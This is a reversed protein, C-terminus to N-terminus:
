VPRGVVPAMGSVTPCTPNTGTTSFNASAASGIGGEGLDRYNILVTYATSVDMFELLYETSGSALRDVRIQDAGQKLHVEIEFDTNTNVWTVLATSGTIDSVVPTNPTALGTLDIKDTTVPFVWGSPLVLKDSDQPLSRGRVWIRRGPALGDIITTATEYVTTAYRWLDSSEAPRTGTAVTTSAFEIQVPDTDGNVTVPVNIAVSESGTVLSLAGLSPGTAVSDEGLDVGTLVTGISGPSIEVIRVLRNGGRLNTAPDAIEDFDWIALGGVVVSSMGSAGINVEASHEVVGAAYPGKLEEIQRLLLAEVRRLDSEGADTDQIFARHGIADIKLTREPLSSDSFNLVILPVQFSEIMSATVDPWEEQSASIDTRARVRDAYYYADVRTVASKRQFRKKPSAGDVLDSTSFTPPSGTSIVRRMDVLRLDGSADFYYGFGFPLCLHKEIWERADGVPETLIGRFLGWTTDAIFSTFDSSNYAVSWTVDGFSGGMVQGDSLRGFEGDLMDRMLTHPHIDQIYIPSIESPKQDVVIDFEVATGNAPMALYNPDSTLPVFGYWGTLESVSLRTLHHHNNADVRHNFNPAGPFLASGLITPTVLWHGEAGATAGDLIKVRVRLTPNRVRGVTVRESFLADRLAKTIIDGDPNVSDEAFQSDDVNIINYSGFLAISGIVMTGTAKPVTPLGGFAETMGLPFLPSQIAYTVNAHPLGVFVKRDLSEAMDRVSFKLWLRGDSAVGEILGTFWDSFSGSPGDTSREVLCKLGGLQERGDANGTFATIFRSLNSGGLETRIDLTRFTILGTDPKRTLHDIRGRRGTPTDLYAFFGSVGSATALKFDSSHPSGARPTLVTSGDTDFVTVRYVPDYTAM